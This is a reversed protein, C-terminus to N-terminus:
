RWGLDGILAAIIAFIGVVVGLSLALAWGKKLMTKFNEVAPTNENGSNVTASTESLILEIEGDCVYFALRERDISRFREGLEVQSLTDSDAIRLKELNEKSALLQQQLSSIEDLKQSLQAKKVELQRM